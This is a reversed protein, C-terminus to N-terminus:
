DNPVFGRNNCRLVASARELLSSEIRESRLSAQRLGQPHGASSALARYWLWQVYDFAWCARQLKVPGVEGGAQAYFACLRGSADEPMECQRVFSALDFVPDNLGAYEWDVFWPRLQADLVVNQAHIDHHCLALVGSADALRAFVEVAVCQLEVLPDSASTAPWARELMRAQDDFRVRRLNGPVSLRHLRAMTGAIREVVREDGWDPARQAPEIWQTVLLRQQPECHVVAPAFGAAGVLQLIRAEAQLDAGLAETGARALRVFRRQQGATVRWAHNSLGGEIRDFQAQALHAAAVHTALAQRAAQEAEAWEDVANM